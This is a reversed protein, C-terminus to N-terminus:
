GKKSKKSRESKAPFEADVEATTSGASDACTVILTFSAGELKGSKKSKKSKKSQKSKKSKKSKKSVKSKESKVRLDLEDGHDVPEGNLLVSTPASGDSCTAVVEFRGKNHELGKDGTSNLEATAILDSVDPPLYTITLDDLVTFAVDELGISTINACSVTLTRNTGALTGSVGDQACAVTGDFATLTVGVTSGVDVVTVSVESAVEHEIFFDLAEFSFLGGLLCGGTWDVFVLGEYSISSISGPVISCLLTPGENFDYKLVNPDGDVETVDFQPDFGDVGIPSDSCAAIVAVAVIAAFGLVSAKTRM